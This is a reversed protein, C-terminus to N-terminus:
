AVKVIIRARGDDEIAIVKGVARMYEALTLDTEDKAIGTIGGDETAVPVIYQGPTAGTVNVPVQGAFAIRDVKQREAELTAEWEALLETEDASPKAGIADKTGWTDGGVYSPNTSKVLFGVADAFVNTLKGGTNVGCVDGKAIQFDGAKAMYEAYDAGSANITGGANISRLTSTNRGIIQATNAINYNAGNVALYYSSFETGGDISMVVGGESLSRSIRHGPGFTTDVAAGIIVRGGNTITMRETPSSAGDATTSFVLRGPMDNSGPTGDVFAEIVAGRKLDTGDAGCFWFAGLSDGSNVITSSNLSTGRSKGLVIYSGDAANQNTVLSMSSSQYTTGEIQLQLAAISANVQRSSSTGVLLRGSSDIRARETGYDTDSSGSGIRTYFGISGGSDNTTSFVRLQRNASDFALGQRYDNDFVTAVRYTGWGVQMNGNIHLLETPSTTGIGVRGVRDIRLAEISASGNYVGFRLSSDGNSAGDNGRSQIYASPTADAFGNDNYFNIRTGQVGGAVGGASNRFHIQADSSSASEAVTLRAGPTSTGLGLRGSSDLRMRETPTSAGDATTSFILRGPMDNTGPTGDVQTEIAAASVFTTGDNGQFAIAGLRDGNQVITNSGLSAGRSRSLVINTNDSASNCTVSLMSSNFSTGEIQAIPSFISSFLNARATSTGVLVRGSSDVFLRGTGNTSIAVQDAGPSYIGTNTDTTFSYVPAAATGLSVVEIQGTSDIRLRETGGTTVSVQDAGSSYIGTNTDGTFTITPAAASGLAVAASSITLTQSSNGELLQAKTQSM